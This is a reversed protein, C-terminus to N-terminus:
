IKTKFIQAYVTVIEAANATIEIVFANNEFEKLYKKKFINKPLFNHM